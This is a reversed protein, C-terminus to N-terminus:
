LPAREAVDGVANRATLELPDAAGWVQGRAATHGPDILERVKVGTFALAECFEAGASRRIMAEPVYGGGCAIREYLRRIASAAATLAAHRVQERHGFGPNLREIVAARIRALRGPGIGTLGPPLRLLAEALDPHEGTELATAINRRGTDDLARISRGVEIDLAWQWPRSTSYPDVGALDRGLEEMKDFQGLWKKGLRDLAPVGEDMIISRVAAHRGVPSLNEDSLANDMKSGIRLMAPIASGAAGDIIAWLAGYDSGNKDAATPWLCMLKGDPGRTLELDPVDDSGGYPPDGDRVPEYGNRGLEAAIKESLTMAVRASDGEPAQDFVVQRAKDGFEKLLEAHTRKDAKGRSQGLNDPVKGATDPIKTPMSQPDVVAAAATDRQMNAEVGSRPDRNPNRGPASAASNPNDPNGAM